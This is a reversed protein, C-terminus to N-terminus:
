FSWAYVCLNTKTCSNVKKFLQNIEWRWKKLKTLPDDENEKVVCLFGVLSM